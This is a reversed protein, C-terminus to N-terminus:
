NLYIDISDLVKEPNNFIKNEYLRWLSFLVIAILISLILLLVQM